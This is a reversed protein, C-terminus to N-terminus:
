TEGTVRPDDAEEIDLVLDRIPGDVEIEVSGAGPAARPTVLSGDERKEMDGQPYDLRCFPNLLRVICFAGAPLVLSLSSGSCTVQGTIKKAPRGLLVEHSGAETRLDLTEVSLQRLDLRMDAEHVQMALHIPLGTPLLLRWTDGKAVHSPFLPQSVSVSLESRNGVLEGRIVPAPRPGFAETVLRPEGSAPGAQLRGYSFQVRLALEASGAALPLAYESTAIRGVHATVRKKTSDALLMIGAAVLLIPWLNLATSVAGASILQLNYALLFLGIVLSFASSLLAIRRALPHM